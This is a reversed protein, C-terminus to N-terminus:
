TPSRACRARVLRCVEALARNGPKLTRNKLINGVLFSFFRGGLSGPFREVVARRVMARASFADSIKERFVNSFKVSLFKTTNKWIKKQAKFDIGPAFDRFRKAFKSNSKAAARSGAWGLIQCFATAGLTEFFYALPLFFVQSAFFFVQSFISHEFFRAFKSAWIREWIRKQLFNQVHAWHLSEGFFFVLAFKPM